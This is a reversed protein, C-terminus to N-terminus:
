RKPLFGEFIQLDFRARCEEMQQPSRVTWCVLWPRLRRMLAMTRNRDSLADYAIFDPRSAVNGVLAALLHALLPRKGKVGEALQGRIVQPAHRKFWRMALPNFSEVCFPGEYRKLREWVKSCLLDMRRNHKVEIILPRRGAVLDLVDDFTPITEETGRLRLQRLESLTCETIKRDVGCMRLLSDDHFVVLQDDATIHVDLEMGYGHEVANRFAALSNEPLEANWLGRHAYDVGTLHSIDRRPLRPMVLLLYIALALAALALIWVIIM